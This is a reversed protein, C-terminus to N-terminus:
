RRVAEREMGGRRYKRGGERRGENVLGQGTSLVQWARGLSARHPGPRPPPTLPAERSLVRPPTARTAHARSAPSRARPACHPPFVRGPGPEVDRSPSPTGHCSAPSCLLARARLPRGRAVSSPTLSPAAAWLLATLPHQARMRTQGWCPSAPSCLPAQGPLSSGLAGRLMWLVGRRTGSPLSGGRCGSRDRQRDTDEPRLKAGWGM